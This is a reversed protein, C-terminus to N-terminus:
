LWCKKNLLSDNTFKEALYLQRYLAWVKWFPTMDERPGILHLAKHETLVFGGMGFAADSIILVAKGSIQNYLSVAKEYVETYDLSFNTLLTRDDLVYNQNTAPKDQTHLTM